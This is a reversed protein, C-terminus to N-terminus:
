RGMDRRIVPQMGMDMSICMDVDMSIGMDMSICMGVDMCRIDMRGYVYGVGIDMWGHGWEYEYGIAMCSEKWSEILDMVDIRMPRIMSGLDYGWVDMSMRGSMGGCDVSV